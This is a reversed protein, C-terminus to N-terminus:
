IDDCGLEHLSVLVDDIYIEFFSTQESSWDVGARFQRMGGDPVTDLGQVQLALADDVYTEVAGATDSLSVHARLCSWRARPLTVTSTFRSPDHLPLFLELADQDLNFDVGEFTENSAVDDGVFMFNMIQTPEGAPIYVWARVYLDGAHQAPFDRVVAARSMPGSSTAHLSSAGSHAQVTSTDISAANDIIPNPWESALEGEFGACVLASACASVSADPEPARGGEEAYGIVYPNNTCAAWFLACSVVLRKM